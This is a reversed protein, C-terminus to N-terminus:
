NEILLPMKLKKKRDSPCLLPMKKLAPSTSNRSLEQRDTKETRSHLTLAWM